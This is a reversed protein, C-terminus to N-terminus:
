SERSELQNLKALREPTGVDTWNGLYVSASALSNKAANRLMPGLAQVTENENLLSQFFSARYIAIGSFTFSAESMQDATKNLLMGQECLFDGSLNHEPNNVLVLHAQKDTALSPLDNFDYDTYVDGNVVIFPEDKGLLPIAKAIGGATELAGNNEASYTIEAGYQSGNGLYAPIKEGLWAHNIVIEKFGSAVLKEIHYVILPKGNIELLPKPLTDTHPRMREGRGAALIMAKM